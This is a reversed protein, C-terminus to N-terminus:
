PKSALSEKVVNRVLVLDPDNLAWERLHPYLRLAKRLKEPAKEVMNHTAYFCALNYLGLGRARDPADICMLQAVLNEQIHTAQAIDNQDLYYQALHELPPAYATGLIAIGLPETADLWPFRETTMLDEESFRPILNVLNQYAVEAEHLIDAHPRRHQEQFLSTTLEEVSPFRPGIEGCLAKELRLLLHQKLLTLYAIHDKASWCEMTSTATQENESLRGLETRQADYAVQLLHLLVPKFLTDAM